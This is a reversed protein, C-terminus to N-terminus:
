RRVSDLNELIEHRGELRARADDDVVVAQALRALLVGPILLDHAAHVHDHERQEVCLLAGLGFKPLQEAHCILSKHELHALDNRKELKRSGGRPLPPPPNTAFTDGSFIHEQGSVCEGMHYPTVRGFPQRMLMMSATHCPSSLADSGAPSCPACFSYSGGGRQTSKPM